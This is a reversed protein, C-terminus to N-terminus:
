RDGVLKARIPFRPPVESQVFWNVQNGLSAVLSAM